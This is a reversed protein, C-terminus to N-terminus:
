RKRRKGSKPEATTVLGCNAVFRVRDFRPNNAQLVDAVAHVCAEFTARPTTLSTVKHDLRVSVEALKAVLAEYDKKTM